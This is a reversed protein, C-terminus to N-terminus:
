TCNGTGYKQMSMAGVITIALCRTYGRNGTPEHVRITLGAGPLGTAFGERNFLVTTTSSDAVMSDGTTARQVRIPAPDTGSDYVGNGNTDMFVIWGSTWTSGAGICTSGDNSACVGITQGEKIAEARAFQLDGVLGNIEAAVRNSTTVYRYSPVGAALLIGVICVVVVMEVM